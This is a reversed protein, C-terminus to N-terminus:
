KTYVDKFTYLRDAIIAKNFDIHDFGQGGVYVEISHKESINCIDDFEKQYSNIDEVYTSSIYLRKPAYDSFISNLYVQPTLQGSFLVKYGKHELIHDVM